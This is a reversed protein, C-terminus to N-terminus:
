TTKFILYYIYKFTYSLARPHCIYIVLNDTFTLYPVYASKFMLIYKCHCSCKCIFLTTINSTLSHRQRTRPNGIFLHKRITVITWLINRM